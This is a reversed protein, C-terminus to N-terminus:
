WNSGCQLAPHHSSETCFFLPRALELCPLFRAFAVIWDMVTGVFLLISWISLLPVIMTLWTVSFIIRFSSLENGVSFSLYLVFIKYVILEKAYAFTNWRRTQERWCRYSYLNFGDNKWVVSLAPLLHYNAKCCCPLFLAFPSPPLFSRILTMVFVPGICRLEGVM